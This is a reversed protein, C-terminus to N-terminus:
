APKTFGQWFSVGVCCGLLEFHLFMHLVFSKCAQSIFVFSCNKPYSHKKVLHLFSSIVLNIIKLLFVMLKKCSKRWKISADMVTYTLKSFVLRCLLFCCGLLNLPFSTFTCIQLFCFFHSLSLSLSLSLTLVQIKM